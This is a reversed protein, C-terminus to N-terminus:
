RVQAAACAGLAAMACAAVSGPTQPPRQGLQTVALGAQSDGPAPLQAALYGSLRVQSRGIALGVDEGPRARGPGGRGAPHAGSRDAAGRVLALAGRIPTPM